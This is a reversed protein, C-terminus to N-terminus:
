PAEVPPSTDHKCIYLTGAAGEQREAVSAFYHAVGEGQFAIKWKGRRNTTDRGVVANDQEVVHLKVRRHDKCGPNPSKVKGAFVPSTKTITVHSEIHVKHIAIAIAAAVGFAVAVACVAALRVRRSLSM